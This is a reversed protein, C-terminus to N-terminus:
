KKSRKKRTNHNRATAITYGALGSIVSIGLGLLAHDIKWVLMDVVLLVVIAWIANIKLVTKNDM